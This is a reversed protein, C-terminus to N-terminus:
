KLVENIKNIILKLKRANGCDDDCCHFTDDAIERVEELVSRYNNNQEYLEAGIPTLFGEGCLPCKTMVTKKLEENEDLLRRNNLEIEYQKCKNCQNRLAENEQKLRTVYDALSEDKIKETM